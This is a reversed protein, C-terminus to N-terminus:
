KRRKDELLKEGKKAPSIDRKNKEEEKAAAIRDYYETVYPHEGKKVGRAILNKAINM